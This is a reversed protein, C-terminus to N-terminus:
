TGVFVLETDSPGHGHAIDVDSTWFIPTQFVTAISAMPALVSQKTDAKASFPTQFVAHAHVALVM